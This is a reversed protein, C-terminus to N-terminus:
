RKIAYFISPSLQLSCISHYIFHIIFIFCYRLGPRQRVKLQFCGKDGIAISQAQCRLHHPSIESTTLAQGGLWFKYSSKASKDYMDLRYKVKKTCQSWHRIWTTVQHRLWQFFAILAEHMISGCICHKETRYGTIKLLPGHIYLYLQYFRNRIWDKFVGHYKFDLGKDQMESSSGFFFISLFFNWHM